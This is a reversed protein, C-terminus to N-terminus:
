CRRLKQRYGEWCRQLDGYRHSDQDANQQPKAAQGGVALDDGHAGRPQADAVEDADSRNDGDASRQQAQHIREEQSGAGVPGNEVHLLLQLSGLSGVLNLWADEVFIEAVGHEVHLVYPRSGTCGIPVLDEHGVDAIRPIGIMVVAADAVTTLSEVWSSSIRSRSPEGVRSPQRGAAATCCRSM